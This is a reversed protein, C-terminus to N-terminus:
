SSLTTINASQAHFGGYYCRLSSAILYKKRKYDSINQFGQPSTPGRLILRSFPALIFIL